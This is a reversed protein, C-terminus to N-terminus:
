PTLSLILELKATLHKEENIQHAIFFNYLIHIFWLM